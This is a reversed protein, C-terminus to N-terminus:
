NGSSGSDGGCNQESSRLEELSRWRDEAVRLEVAGDSRRALVDFETRSTNCSPEEGPEVVDSGPSRRYYAGGADADVQWVRIDSGGPTAPGVRQLTFSGGDDLAEGVATEAEDWCVADGDDTCRGDYDCGVHHMPDAGNRASEMEDSPCTQGNDSTTDGCGAALTTAALAIALAYRISTTM